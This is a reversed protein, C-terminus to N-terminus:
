GGHPRVVTVELGADELVRRSREWPVGFLGANFRCSWLEGVSEERSSQDTQLEALQRTMDAVALETNRVIVDPPSVARGFGRSTFLCIIWHKKGNAESDRKQPPIILATGEPLRVDRSSRAHSEESQLDPEFMYRPSSLLNQCHPRYIAFAAPYKDKFAKAIGKGWSGQCNCAHILAAGDPAHFLDGEIETIKSRVSPPDMTTSILPYSVKRFRVLPLHLNLDAAYLYSDLSHLCIDDIRLIGADQDEAHGELRAIEGMMTVGNTAFNEESIPIYLVIGRSPAVHLLDQLAAQILITNRLNTIPAILYPLAFVKMLYAPLASNGFYLCADQQITVMMFAEPKQYIQALRSTLDSALKSDDYTIRSNTKIEIVVVSDNSIRTRPSILPGRTNFLEDFCRTKTQPSQEDDVSRHAVHVSQAGPSVGHKLDPAVTDDEEKDEFFMSPKIAAREFKNKQKLTEEPVTKSTLAQFMAPSQLVPVTPSLSTSSTTSYNHRRRLFSLDMRMSNMTRVRWGGSSSSSNM